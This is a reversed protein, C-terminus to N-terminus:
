MMHFGVEELDKLIKQDLSAGTLLLLTKKSEKISVFVYHNGM